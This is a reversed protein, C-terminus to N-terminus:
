PFGADPSFTVNTVMPRWQRRLGRQVVGGQLSQMGQQAGHQADAGELIRGFVEALAAHGGEPGGRALGGAHAARQVQGSPLLCHGGAHAVVQLAAVQEGGGVAAVAVRQGLAGVGGAHHALQEAAGSAAVAALAARHVDGVERHAHQAGVAHHGGAQRDGYTGRM